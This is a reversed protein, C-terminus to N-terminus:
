DQRRSIPSLGSLMRPLKEKKQLGLYNFFSKPKQEKKIKIKQMSEIDPQINLVTYKGDELSLNIVIEPRQIVLTSNQYPNSIM